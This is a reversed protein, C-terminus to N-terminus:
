SPRYAIVTLDDPKSPDNGNRGAMRRSVEAVMKSLGENLPGSRVFEVIETPLLNDVLGDSAVVLTDRPAMETTPGIEIRMEDSGIVNSIVHRAEHHIADEEKMLGAEVAYGVPSHAITQLKLKGRQGTMLIVSDGVHYPRVTHDQIEVLALTTAAGTGLQRVKQNAAEIGDLIASRFKDADGDPALAVAAQVTKQLTEVALRSAREGGAHGGLGDAVVLVGSSPGTPLFAAVDENPTEKHPSRTTYVAATGGAFELTAVDAMQAEALVVGLGRRKASRPTVGIAQLAPWEAPTPMTATSSM